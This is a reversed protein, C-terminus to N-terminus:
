LFIFRLVMKLWGKVVDEAVILHFRSVLVLPRVSLRRSESVERKTLINTSGHFEIDKNPQRLVSNKPNNPSRTEKCM